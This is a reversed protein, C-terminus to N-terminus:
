RASPPTLTVRIGKVPQGTADTLRISGQWGGTENVVKFVLVNTGAKLTVDTVQDQDPLYGRRRECRYIEKGNLYVKAQDDSGVKMVLGTQANESELYCVAYALAWEAKCNLLEHFDLEYDEHRFERWLMETDAVRSRQGACPRLQAEGTIQQFDLAKAGNRGEFGIPGLVLWQSVAGPDERLAPTITTRIGKVPQGAPDTFRISGRWDDSEEHALKFVLVNLGSKLAVGTVTDQDRIYTRPEPRRYIENGNLYILCQDDSGVKLCLNTQEVASQIYSLAYAVCGTPTGNLIAMFNLPYPGLNASRWRLESEGVQVRNGARALLHAEGPIQEQALAAEGSPGEYTIPALALWQKIAGPDQSLLARQQDADAAQERALAGLRETAEKEESQWDAVQDPMAAQWVKAIEDCGGTVIRFGDSSISVGSVVASHGRLTLLEEGNAADWIKATKDNCATVVRRGDPSFAVCIIEDTHGVLHFM